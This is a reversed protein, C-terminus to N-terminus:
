HDSSITALFAGSIRKIYAKNVSRLTSTKSRQFRCVILLTKSLEELKHCIASGMPCFFLESVTRAISICAYRPKDPDCYRARFFAHMGPSLVLTGPHWFNCIVAYVPRACSAKYM